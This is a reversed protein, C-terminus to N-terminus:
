RLRAGRFSATNHCLSCQTGFAGRHKDDRGHCSICATSRSLDVPGTPRHCAACELGIHAGTLRYETQNDHNFIWFEWGNPNHCTECKNSVRGNHPDDSQHCSVCDLRINSFADDQHCSDCSVLLHLGLLPFRALDHDFAVNDRWGDTSHCTACDRGLTGNHPDDDLHCGVCDTVTEHQFANVTHCGNCRVQQHKGSLTFDTDRDHIFRITSWQTTLHCSECKPGFRDQHVDQIRHCGVCTLPLDKYVEGTHCTSCELELHADSLPFKTKSHDYNRIEAWNNESHCAACERGLAGDHPEDDKHCDVCAIPAERFSEGEEHCSTCSVAQHGGTLTFDTQRHDFVEMDFQVIDADLGIHETHCHSCENSGVESALGHFGVSTSIDVAVDKHCDLCLQEQAGQSFSEHCNSCEKQLKAHGEILDGPMVLREFLSQSQAPFGSLVFVFFAGLLSALLLAKPKKMMM